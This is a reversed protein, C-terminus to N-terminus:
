NATFWLDEEIRTLARSGARLQDRIEVNQFHTDNLFALSSMVNPIGNHVIFGYIQVCSDYSPGYFTKGYVAAHQALVKIPNTYAGALYRLAHEASEVENLDFVTKVTSSRARLFNLHKNTRKPLRTDQIQDALIDVLRVLGTM